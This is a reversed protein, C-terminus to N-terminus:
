SINKRDGSGWGWGVNRKGTQSVRRKTDQPGEIGDKVPRGRGAEKECMRSSKREVAEKKKIQRQGM